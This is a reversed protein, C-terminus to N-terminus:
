RVPESSLVANQSRAKFRGRISGKDSVDALCYHAKDNTINAVVRCSLFAPLKGQCTNEAEQVIPLGTDRRIQSLKFKVDKDSLNVYYCVGIAQSAGGYAPASAIFEAHAVGAGILTAAVLMAGRM